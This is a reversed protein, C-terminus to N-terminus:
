PGLDVVTRRQSGLGDLLVPSAGQCQLQGDGTPANPCTPITLLPNGKFYVTEYRFIM